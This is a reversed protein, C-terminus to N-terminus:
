GNWVCRQFPHDAAFVTDMHGTLLLRRAAQARVRFVLHRGHALAQVTGDAGVAEVPTGEVLEIAGPLAALAAALAEAQAALGALNRTGTNIASWTQVQSLMPAPDITAVLAAEAPSLQQM